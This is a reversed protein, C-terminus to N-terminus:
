KVCWYKTELHKSDGRMLSGLKSLHHNVNAETIQVDSLRSGFLTVFPLTRVMTLVQSSVFVCFLLM